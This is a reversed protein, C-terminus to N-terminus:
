ILLKFKLYATSYISWMLIFGTFSLVFLNEITATLCVVPTSSYTWTCSFLSDSHITYLWTTLICMFITTTTDTILQTQPHHKLVSFVMCIVHILYVVWLGHGELKRHLTSDSDEEYGQVCVSCLSIWIPSIM